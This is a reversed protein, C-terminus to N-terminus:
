IPEVRLGFGLPGPTVPSGFPEMELVLTDGAALTAQQGFTFAEGSWGQNAVFPEGDRLRTSKRLFEYGYAFHRAIAAASLPASYFAVHAMRMGAPVLESAAARRGIGHVGATSTFATTAPGIGASTLVTNVGDIWIQHTNDGAGGSTRNYVIHHWTGPELGPFTSDTMVINTGAIAVGVGNNITGNTATGGLMLLMPVGATNESGILCARTVDWKTAAVFVWCEYCGGALWPLAYSNTVVASTAGDFTYSLEANSANQVGPVGRSGAAAAVQYTGNNAGTKSDTATTGAVEDLMYYDLIGTEALIMTKYYGDATAPSGTPIYSPPGAFKGPRRLLRNTWYVTDSAAVASTPSLWFSAIRCPFSAVYLPYTAYATGPSPLYGGLSLDEVSAVSAPNVLPTGDAAMANSLVDNLADWNGAYIPIKDSSM